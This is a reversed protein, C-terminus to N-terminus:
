PDITELPVLNTEAYKRKLSLYSEKRRELYGESNEPSLLIGWDDDTPLEQNFIIKLMKDSMEKCYHAEDVFNYPNFNYKAYGNFNYFDTVASMNKLYDWYLPSDIKSLVSISSPAILVVLKIHHVICKRKIRSLSELVWESAPFDTESKDTFIRKYQRQFLPVLNKEVFGLNVREAPRYQEIYEIMGNEHVQPIFSQRRLLINLLIPSCDALLINKLEGIKSSLKSDLTYINKYNSKVSQIEQGNLQLIIHQVQTHKILFDIIMEYDEQYGHPVCLNYFSLGTFRSTLDPDITGTRSGGIIFGNYRHPNEKIYRLKANRVSIGEFGSQGYPQETFYGYPDSLRNIAMIATVGVLCVGCFVVCWEKATM